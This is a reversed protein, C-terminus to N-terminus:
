FVGTMDVRRVEGGSQVARTAIEIADLRDDHAADPFQLWEEQEFARWREATPDGAIVLEGSQFESSLDHIRGEKDGTSDEGRTRIPSDDRLTQAVGPAKNTEVVLQDLELNHGDVTADQVKDEAWDANEQVSLGRRHWLHTLYQRSGSDAIIALASYDTNGEAAAQADEVVGIDMGGYYNYTSPDGPLEDEYTLWDSEFVTGQLATPDNQNERKWIAPSHHEDDRGGGLTTQETDASV